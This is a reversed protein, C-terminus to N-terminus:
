EGQVCVALAEDNLVLGNVEGILEGENLGEAFMLLGELEDVEKFLVGMKPSIM